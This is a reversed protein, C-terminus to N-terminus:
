APYAEIYESIAFNVRGPDETEPWKRGWKRFREQVTEPWTLLPAQRDYLQKGAPNVDTTAARTKEEVIPKYQDTPTSSSQYKQVETLAGKINKTETDAKARVPGSGMVYALAAFLAAICVSIWFRYKIVQRLFEKFQEMADTQAMTAQAKW